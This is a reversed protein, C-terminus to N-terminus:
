RNYPCFTLNFVKLLFRKQSLAHIKRSLMATQVSFTAKIPKRCYDILFNWLPKHQRKSNKKRAVKFDIHQAEKLYDEHNYDTFGSDGFLEPFNPPM